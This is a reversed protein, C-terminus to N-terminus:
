REDPLKAKYIGLAMAERRVLMRILQAVMIGHHKAVASLEVRDEDSLRLCMQKDKKAM